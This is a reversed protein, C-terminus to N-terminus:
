DIDPEVEVVTFTVGDVPGVREVRGTPQLYTSPPYLVESELPFCSLAAINGGRQRFGSTKIKLILPTRSASYSIATELTMSTSMLALETGGRCPMPGANPSSEDVPEMFESEALDINAMGRFLDYPRSRQDLPEAERLKKIGSTLYAVTAPFPYPPSVATKPQSSGGGGGGGGSGGGSRRPTATQKPATRARLHKNISEFAKTSYLRIALVEETELGFGSSERVFDDLSKPPSDADRIVGGFTTLNTGAREHLVYHLCERDDDTAFEKSAFEEKIADVGRAMTIALTRTTLGLLQALGKSSPDDITFENPDGCFKHGNTANRLGGMQRVIRPLRSGLLVAQQIGAPMRLTLTMADTRRSVPGDSLDLPAAQAMPEDDDLPAAWLARIESLIQAKTRRARGGIAKSVALRHEDIFDRLDDLSSSENFVLSPRTTRASANARHRSGGGTRPTTGLQQQQQQQTPPTSPASRRRAARIDDRIDDLTRGSTGGTNKKVDLDEADILKKLGALNLQSLDQSM